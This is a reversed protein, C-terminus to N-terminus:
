LGQQLMTSQRQPVAAAGARPLSRWKGAVSFMVKYGEVAKYGQPQPIPAAVQLRDHMSHSPM